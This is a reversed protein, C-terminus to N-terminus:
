KEEKIATNFNKSFVVNIWDEHVEAIICSHGYEPHEIEDGVELRDGNEVKVKFVQSYDNLPVELLLRRGYEDRCVPSPADKISKISKIKVVKNGNLSKAIVYKKMM